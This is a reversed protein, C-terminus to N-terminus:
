SGGHHDSCRPDELYVWDGFLECTLEGDDFRKRAAVGARQKKDVLRRRTTAAEEFDEVRIASGVRRITLAQDAFSNLAAM